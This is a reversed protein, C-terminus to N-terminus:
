REITTKAIIYVLRLNIEWLIQLEFRGKFHEHLILMNRKSYIIITRIGLTKATLEDSKVIQFRFSRWHDSLEM